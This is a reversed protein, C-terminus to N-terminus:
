IRELKRYCHPGVSGRCMSSRLPTLVAQHTHTPTQNHIELYRNFTNLRPLSPQPRRKLGGVRRGIQGM